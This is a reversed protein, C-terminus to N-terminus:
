RPAEAHHVTVLGAASEAEVRLFPHSRPVTVRVFERQASLRAPAAAVVSDTSATTTDFVPDPDPTAAEATRVFGYLLRDSTAYEDEAPYWAIEVLEGAWATLDVVAGGTDLEPFQYVGDRPRQTGMRPGVDTM